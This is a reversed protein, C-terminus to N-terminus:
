EVEPVVLIVPDCLGELEGETDPHWVEVRDFEREAELQGLTDGVAHMVAEVLVM